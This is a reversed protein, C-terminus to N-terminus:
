QGSISFFLLKSSTLFHSWYYDAVVFCVQETPPILDDFLYSPGGISLDRDRLRKCYKLLMSIAPTASRPKELCLDTLMMLKYLSTETDAKSADGRARLMNTDGTTEQIDDTNTATATAASATAASATTATQMVNELYEKEQQIDILSNNYPLGVKSLFEGRKASPQQISKARESLTESCEVDDIYELVFLL